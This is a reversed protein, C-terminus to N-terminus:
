AVLVVVDGAKKAKAISMTQDIMVLDLYTDMDDMQDLTAQALRAVVQPSREKNDGEESESHTMAAEKEDLDKVVGTSEHLSLNEEVVEAASTEVATAATAIVPTSDMQKVAEAANTDKPTSEQEPITENVERDQEADTINLLDEQDQSSM